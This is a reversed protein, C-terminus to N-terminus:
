VGVCLTMGVKLGHCGLGLESNWKLLDALNLEAVHKLLILPCTDGKEVIYFSVCDPAIGTPYPSASVISSSTSSVDSSTSPVSTVYSTTSSVSSLVFSDPPSSSDTATSASSSFSTTSNFSTSNTTTSNDPLASWGYTPSICYAKGASLETDCTAAHLSPNIRLFLSAPIGSRIM